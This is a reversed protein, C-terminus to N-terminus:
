ISYDKALELQLVWKRIKSTITVNVSNLRRRNLKSEGAVNRGTKTVGTELTNKHHAFYKTFLIVSLGLPIKKASGSPSERHTLSAFSPM